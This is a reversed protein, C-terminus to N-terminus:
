PKELCIIAKKEVCSETLIDWRKNEDLECKFDRWGELGFGLIIPMAGFALLLTAFVLMIVICIDQFLSM